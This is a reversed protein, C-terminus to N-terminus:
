VSVSDAIKVSPRRELYQIVECWQSDLSSNLAAALDGQNAFNCQYAPSQKGYVRGRDFKGAIGEQPM